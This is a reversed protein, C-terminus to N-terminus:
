KTNRVVADVRTIEFGTAILERLRGEVMTVFDPDHGRVPITNGAMEPFYDTTLPL